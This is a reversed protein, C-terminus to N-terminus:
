QTAANDKEQATADMTDAESALRTLLISIRAGGEKRNALDIRGGHEEVIKRVIALGLGTGHSKTTVYPEFARQMVQPPFGPGTDAVTFRLAQHAARDPQESRMLQTTVSVRGQGGQEAIADRANSMLNHIVQRLQTPDGEILPLDPALTVDLNLAKEALRSAGGEPEWGYLSLVDAVLANFDIRQMVAPPTRAYERFDDVMQKLSAVQNVITNTSREVIQAEAPPLKGELKMALREASLQIPTLPNKIEHALRRAVEGWAVTRNASIVETIDDFVVLYGNGRGDVRLHTGRALLTLPQAGAPADDQGPAIEFQQQWHQRESGVAAHASFAQRVINAFELMGAVTELPRGIVSRLDAGLITQAGQNVTTVRFSEDFVLVGSSLNSLVSELYVNSRELQQRNSEVMRRAEDLQRTMANFSRTLQGVEDREPPEPLPRYDGVGVAQTGGALSLLPRVLRKSLSLAVAIAGFAALLLALTLTIGYLKRLGLRSLALEQYDRFGQQVLNANHAIQEPVPQLLQLWRPESAAGLLNDYRDPGTLPIVVRLHLGGEAGPTVPDDAEAASYGRALRLQNMVTSPPTAPLLQGYQSTSFAIMRGSGTFVMAEQVGNAERLRTLALTVGSDSSRNLEMAMSRARADLDALLSDLAARGLNLGAELATDVRVNFWSEISRSMFQVSVTYILAGPVVGILAFALSFRATLRAGFQRRRIQRALRVTLAVVWIFLALAFIGNLVLLTDYYRAFRSANGTSWALLGLLALGSAAGVMLALRLVLRM